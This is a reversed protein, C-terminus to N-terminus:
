LELEVRLVEVLREYQDATNYFHASVRLLRHGQWHVVPIEIGYGNRLRDQLPDRHGPETPPSDLNGGSMPLELSLMSPCRSGEGAEIGTLGTLSSIQRAAEDLLSRSHERFRAVIRPEFFDVAAATALFAAPNRTGLWLSEDKWSPQRGAISGGWSVLAPKVKGQRRPHVFLFGSGFPASLWKHCSACYFDCDLKRLSVDVTVLAHPGDVCTLIGRERARRCIEEIPFVLATPSTVHSVVIVRTRETVSEFLREVIEEHSNLTAPLDSVVLRSGTQQCRNRWIRRVAGYEHDNLLVEDGAALDVSAAAINMAFTANDVFVLNGRSTGTFEALKQLSDELAEECEHLFFGMPNQELRDTWRAFAERVPLPSPGFSGHNLYTVQDPLSWLEGPARPEATSTM